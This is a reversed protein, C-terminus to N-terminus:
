KTVLCVVVQGCRAILEAHDHSNTLGAIGHIGDRPLLVLVRLGPQTLTTLDRLRELPPSGMKPSVIPFSDKPFGNVPKSNASSAGEVNPQDTQRGPAAPCALCDSGVAVAVDM